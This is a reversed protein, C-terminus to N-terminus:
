AGLIDMWVVVERLAGPQDNKELTSDPGIEVSVMVTRLGSALADIGVQLYPNATERSIADAPASALLALLLWILSANFHRYM